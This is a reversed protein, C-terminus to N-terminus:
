SQWQSGGRERHRQVMGRARVGEVMAARQWPSTPEEGGAELPATDAEFRAVATAIAGAEQANPSRDM